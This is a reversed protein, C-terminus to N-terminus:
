PKSASVCTGLVTAKPGQPSARAQRYEASSSSRPEVDIIRAGSCPWLGLLQVYDKSTPPTMMLSGNVFSAPTTTPHATAASRTGPQEAGGGRCDGRASSLTAAEAVERPSLDTFLVDADDPNGATRVELVSKLNEVLEPQTEVMKKEGAALGDCEDRQRIRHCSTWSPWDANLPENRADSCRPWMSSGAMGWGGLRSPSMGDDIKRPCRKMFPGFGNWWKRNMNCSFYSLWGQSWEFLGHFLGYAPEFDILYM